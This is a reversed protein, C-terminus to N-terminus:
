LCVFQLVAKNQIKVRACTLFIVWCNDFYRCYNGYIIWLKVIGSDIKQLTAIKSRCTKVVCNLINTQSDTQRNSQKDTQREACIFSIQFETMTLPSAGLPVKMVSPTSHLITPKNKDSRYCKSINYFISPTKLSRFFNPFTRNKSKFIIVISIM